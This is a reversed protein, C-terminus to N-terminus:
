SHFRNRRTRDRRREAERAANHLYAQARALTASQREAQIYWQRWLRQPIAGTLGADGLLAMIAAQWREFNGTM